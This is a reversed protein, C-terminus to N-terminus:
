LHDLSRSSSHLQSRTPGDCIRSSEASPLFLINPQAPAIKICPRTSASPRGLRMPGRVKHTSHPSVTEAIPPPHITFLEIINTRTLTTSAFSRIISSRQRLFCCVLAPTTRAAVEIPCHSGTHSSVRQHGLTVRCSRAHHQIVSCLTTRNGEVVVHVDIPLGAYCDPEKKVYGEACTKKAPALLVASKTLKREPSKCSDIIMVRVIRDALASKTVHRRSDATAAEPLPLVM